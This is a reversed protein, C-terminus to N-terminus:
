TAALVLLREEALRIARPPDLPRSDGDIEFPVEPPGLLDVRSVTRYLVDHRELHTGLAVDRFFGLTAARGSGQFLVLGLRGDDLRVEPALLFRGAYYPLNCIAAVTAEYPEGDATLRVPTYEYSLWTSLFELAVAPKGLRRKAKQDVHAMVAADFGASAVMLFVEDGTLGVDMRVPRARALARAARVPDLPLGLTIAVVNATGAPLVGLATDSGVTGAAIERLLGDGGLGFVVAARRAVADSALATAHGPEETEVVKIDGGFWRLADRIEPLKDLARGRGARPNLILLAREAGHPTM